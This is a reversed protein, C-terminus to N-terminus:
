TTHQEDFHNCLVQKCENEDQLQLLCSAYLFIKVEYRNCKSTTITVSETEVSGTSTYSPTNNHLKDILIYTYLGSCSNTIEQDNLLM